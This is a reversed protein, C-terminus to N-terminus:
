CVETDTPRHSAMGKHDSIIYNELGAQEDPQSQCILLQEAGCVAFDDIVMLQVNEYKQRLQFYVFDITTYFMVLM